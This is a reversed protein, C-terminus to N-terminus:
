LGLVKFFLAVFYFVEEVSINESEFVEKLNEEIYEATEPYKLKVSDLVKKRWTLYKRIWVLKKTWTRVLLNCSIDSSVSQKSVYM